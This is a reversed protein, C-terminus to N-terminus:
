FNRKAVKSKVLSEFLTINYEDAFDTKPLCFFNRSNSSFVIFDNKRKIAKDINTWAMELKVTEGTLKIGEETFEYTKPERMQPIKKYHKKASFYVFVPLLLTFVFYFIALYSFTYKNDNTVIALLVTAIVLLLMIWVLKRRLLMYLNINYYRKFTLKTAITVPQM